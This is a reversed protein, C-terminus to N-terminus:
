VVLWILPNLKESGFDASFLILNRKGVESPSNLLQVLRYQRPFVSTVNMYEEDGHVAEIHSRLEQSKVAAFDCQDCQYDGERHVAQVHSNLEKRKVSKFDCKDCQYSWGIYLKWM